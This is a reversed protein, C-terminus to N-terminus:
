IQNFEEVFKLFEPGPVPRSFFYGPLYDVGSQVLDEKQLMTEIGEAVINLNMQKIMATSSDLIMKGTDDNAAMDIMSKDFKVISLPLSLLSTINSYGTGFDDLSFTIGHRSLLTMNQILMKPSNAAATETIELNVHRGDIKYRNMLSIVEESLGEQMCQVMSLNIEIYDIGKQDLSNESMFRFVKEFVIHGIKLIMGNQEALPIFEDPPVFGLEETRLRILAEASTISNKSTSYIPQYYIEFGDNDIAWKMAAEVQQRRTRDFTIIEDASLAWHRSNDLEQLYHLYLYVTELDPGHEPLSLKLTRFDLNIQASDISFSSKFIHNIKKLLDDTPFPAREKYMIAFSGNHLYYVEQRTAHELKTTVASLLQFFREPTFTHILVPLEEICLFLIRDQRNTKTNTLFNKSFANDNLAGTQDHIFEEPRQLNIYILLLCFTITFNEILYEPHFLQFLSASLCIVMFTYLSFRLNKLLVDKFLSCYVAGFGAYYFSVVYLPLQFFGRHYGFSDYYFIAKTFPNTFIMFLQVVYPLLLLIKLKKSIHFIDNHILACTYLSYFFPISNHFLFYGYSTANLLWFPLSVAHRSTMVSAIDFASSFLAAIILATYLTNQHLSLKKKRNYLFFLLALLPISCFNFDLHYQM